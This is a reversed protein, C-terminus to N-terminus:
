ASSFSIVCKEPSECIVVILINTILSCTVHECPLTKCTNMDNMFAAARCSSGKLKASNKQKGIGATLDQVAPLIPCIKPDWAISPIEWLPSPIPVFSGHPYGQPHYFSNLLLNYGQINMKLELFGCTNNPGSCISCSQGYRLCSWSQLCLSAVYVTETCCLQKSPVLDSM